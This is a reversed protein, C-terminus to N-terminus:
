CGDDQGDPTKFDEPNSLPYGKEKIKRIEKKIRRAYKLVRKAYRWGAHRRNYRRGCTYGANYGCLGKLLSGRGYKRIWKNLHKAGTYISVAPVKLQRCSRRPKRTYRPLVQTLGCAGARSVARHNWRSEIRILAILVEPEVHYKEAAAAVYPMQECAFEARPMGLQFVAFCLMEVLM